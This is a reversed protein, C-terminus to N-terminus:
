ALNKFFTQELAPGGSEDDLGLRQKEARLEAMQAPDLLRVQGIQKILLLIQCYSELMELKYFADMLSKGFTVAGHNGLLVAHTDAEIERTVKGGLEKYGPKSYAVTPIKGLCVEAEPYVGQPLPVGSCAFATAHPSHAHVVAGVDPRKQYIALHLFIESTRQYKSPRGVPHGKLDVLTMMAPQLFGKSVGTPTALVRGKAVRCSLNGDNGACFGRQWMRRGIDCIERTCSPLTTPM